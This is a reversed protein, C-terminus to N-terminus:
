TPLSVFFSKPITAGSQCIFKVFPSMLFFSFSFFIPSFVEFCFNIKPGDDPWARDVLQAAQAQQGHRVLSEKVGGVNVTSALQKVELIKLNNSADKVDSIGRHILSLQGSTAADRSIM